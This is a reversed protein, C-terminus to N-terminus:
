SHTFDLLKLDLVEEGGWFNREMKYVIDIYSPSEEQARQADFSVARWTIDGQKLKLELYKNQNGFNRREVVEVKRTLFTPRPNSQGFPELQQILSFVDGAFISLPVEADILLKPRLDLHSLQNAASSMLREELKGLNQRAAVFGAAM